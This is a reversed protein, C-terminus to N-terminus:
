DSIKKTIMLGNDLAALYYSRVRHDTRTKPLHTGTVRRLYDEMMHGYDNINDAVIIGGINMIPVLIDLYKGYNEKDADLFVFDIKEGRWNSLVDGAEGYILNINKLGSAGIKETALDRKIDLLEITHVMGGNQKAGHAMYLAAFGASTGVEVINKSRTLIILNELLQASKEPVSWLKIIEGKHKRGYSHEDNASAHEWVDEIQIISEISNELAKSKKPFLKQIDKGETGIALKKLIAQALFATDKKDITTLM